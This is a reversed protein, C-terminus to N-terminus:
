PNPPVVGGQTPETPPVAVNGGAGGATAGGGDGKIDSQLSQAANRAADTNDTMLSATAAAMRADIKLQGNASTTEQNIREISKDFAQLAEMPKGSLLLARGYLYLFEADSSSLPQGGLSAAMRNAEASPARDVQRRRQEYGSAAVESATAPAPASTANTNTASPEGAFMRQYMRGGFFAAASAVLLLVMFALTKGVGGSKARPQPAHEPARQAPAAAPAFAASQAAREVLTSTAAGAPQSAGGANDFPRHLHSSSSPLSSASPEPEPANSVVPARQGAVLTREGDWAEEDGTASMTQPAREGVRIVVATLNDEAGREFCRRKMEACAAELAAHGVLISRLEDDDIHRTIGDTCLLFITGDDIEIVKMDVEVSTEAGLARSIVNRSPHNAAQQPTMRGARVEEEVVSHDDTERRLTGDPTLRYLRSDGVHGITAQRGDLHLAVLTTAMMSLKPHERSMQHISSNARQIAIEMLDEIDEGDTHHRFAEDLVEIATQSAVEGAEAGGVGDAVAFIRRQDDALYSDENLPRRENLGRDTISATTISVTAQDTM